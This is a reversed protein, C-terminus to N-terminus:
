VENEMEEDDDLVMVEPEDPDRYQASETSSSVVPHPSKSSSNGAPNPINLIPVPPNTSPVGGSHNDSKSSTEGNITKKGSM